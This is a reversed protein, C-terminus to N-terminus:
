QKNEATKYKIVAWQKQLEHLSQELASNASVNNFILLSLAIFTLKKM